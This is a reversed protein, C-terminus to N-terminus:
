PDKFYFKYEYTFSSINDTTLTGYSDYPVIFFSYNYFKPVQGGDNYHIKKNKLPIWITMYRHAERGDQDGAVGTAYASFGMQLNFIKQYVPTIIEKDIDDMIRNGVATKFCSSLPPISNSQHKFVCIRYMINPRDLKNAIWLKISIGRAIVEDGVRNSIVSTTAGTDTLGQSTNLLQTVIYGSNHNMQNNEASIHAYKTESHKLSVKKILSILSKTNTSSKKYTKKTSKKRFVRVPKRSKKAYKLPM